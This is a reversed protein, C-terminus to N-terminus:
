VILLSYKLCKQFHANLMIKEVYISLDQHSLDGYFTSELLFKKKQASSITNYTYIDTDM